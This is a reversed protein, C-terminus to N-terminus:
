AEFADITVSFNIFNSLLSIDSGFDPSPHVSTIFMKFSPDLQVSQNDITVAIGTTKRTGTVKSKEYVFLPYLKNSVSEDVNEIIITNGLKICLKLEQLFRSTQM